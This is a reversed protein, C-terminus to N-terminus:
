YVKSVASVQDCSSVVTKFPRTTPAESSSEVTSSVVLDLVVEATVATLVSPTPVSSTVLAGSSMTGASSRPGKLISRVMVIVCTSTRHCRDPDGAGASSDQALGRIESPPLRPYPM